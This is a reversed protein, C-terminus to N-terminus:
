KLAALRATVAALHAPYDVAWAANLKSVMKAEKAEIAKGKCSAWGERELKGSYSEVNRVKGNQTTVVDYKKAGLATKDHKLVWADVCDFVVSREADLQKLEEELKPRSADPAMCGALGTATVVPPMQAPLHLKAPRERTLLAPAVPLVRGTVNVVHVPDGARWLQPLGRLLLVPENKKLGAVAADVRLYRFAGGPAAIFARRLLPVHHACSQTEVISTELPALDPFFSRLVPEAADSEVQRALPDAAETPPAAPPPKRGEDFVDDDATRRPPPPQALSAVSAFLLCCALLRM